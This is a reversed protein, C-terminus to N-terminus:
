LEREVFWMAAGRFFEKAEEDWNSWSDVRAVAKKANKISEEKLFTDSGVGRLLSVVKRLDEETSDKNGLCTFLFDKDSLSLRKMSHTILLTNKGEKLDALSSKGTVKEDGFMGLYDDQLQGAIGVFLAYDRIRELDKEKGGAVLLGLAMPAYTSSRVAKFDALVEFDKTSLKEPSTDDRELDFIQGYFTGLGGQIQVDILNRRLDDPIDSSLLVDIALYAAIDGALLAEGLAVSKSKKDNLSAITSSRGRRSPSNDIIDDHILLHTQLLEISLAVQLLVKEDEASPEKGSFLKYSEYLFAVRQRKGGGLSLDEILDLALAVDKSSKPFDQTRKLESLYDSFSKDFSAKYSSIKNFLDKSSSM